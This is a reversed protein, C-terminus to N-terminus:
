TAMVVKHGTDYHAVAVIYCLNIKGERSSPPRSYQYLIEFFSAKTTLATPLARM